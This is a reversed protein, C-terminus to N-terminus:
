TADPCISESVSVDALLRTRCITDSLEHSNSPSSARADCRQRSHRPFCTADNASTSARARSFM